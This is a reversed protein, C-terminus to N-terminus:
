SEQGKVGSGQGDVEPLSARLYELLGLAALEEEVQAPSEDDLGLKIENILLDAFRQRARHLMQRANAPRVFTGLKETLRAALQDSTEDPFETRWKLLTYAPNSPNAREFQKLDAWAHDLVNTQWAGLWAAETRADSDDALRDLDVPAPRRRNQKAWHNRVMNRVAAKLFDRFRGRDADARAFDGKLLRVIVDQAVEDTNDPDQLIGGVYRRIASAYHMVLVGRAQEAAAPEGDAHARRVLSWRTDIADLRENSM